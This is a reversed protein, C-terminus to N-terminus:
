FLKREIDFVTDAIEAFRGIFAAVKYDAFDERSRLGSELSAVFLLGAENAAQADTVSDGVYVCREPSLQDYKAFLEDFVRPDPKHYATNGKHYFDAIRTALPHAADLMHQLEFQARSTVIVGLKGAAKLRDLSQYSAEPIVDLLGSAVRQPVTESYLAVFTDMDVGPSRLAIAEELPRGWTEIHIEREMPIRGMQVLVHNELEFAAAETSCLTDDVDYIVAEIM